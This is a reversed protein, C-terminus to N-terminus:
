RRMRLVVLAAVYAVGGIAGLAAYPLGDRGQALEVVFMLLVALLVAM